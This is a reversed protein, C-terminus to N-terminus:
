RIKGWKTTMEKGDKQKTLLRKQNERRYTYLLWALEERTLVSDEDGAFLEAGDKGAYRFLIDTLDKERCIEDPFFQNEQLGRFSSGSAKLWEVADHAPHKRDVDEFSETLGKLKWGLPLDGPYGACSYLSM